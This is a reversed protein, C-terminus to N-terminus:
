NDNLNLTRHQKLLRRFAKYDGQAEGKTIIFYELVVYFRSNSCYSRVYICLSKSLKGCM